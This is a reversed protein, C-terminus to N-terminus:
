LGRKTFHFSSINCIRSLEVIKEEFLGRSSFTGPEKHMSARIIERTSKDVSMWVEDNSFEIRDNPMRFVNSHLIVVFEGNENYFGLRAQVQMMAAQFHLYYTGLETSVQIENLEEESSERFLYVKTRLRDLGIQYRELLKQTVEWYLFATELNVPLFVLMDMYYRHPIEYDHGTPMGRVEDSLLQVNHTNSSFVEEKISEQSLTRRDSDNM